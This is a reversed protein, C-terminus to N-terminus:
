APISSELFRRKLRKAPGILMPTQEFHQSKLREEVAALLAVYTPSRKQRLAWVLASTFAGESTNKQRVDAATQTDLSAQFAIWRRDTDRVTKSHMRSTGVSSRQGRLARGSEGAVLDWPSPLYRDIVRADPAQIARTNTGSFCCDLTVVLEVGPAAKELALGIYTLTLPDRWDLDHPCLAEERYDAEDGEKDPLNSGRGSFHVWAVDGPKSARVLRTVGTTIAKKTAQEDLLTVIESKTFALGEVLVSMLSHVDNVCGRLDAGPVRYRNIGILLARRIM